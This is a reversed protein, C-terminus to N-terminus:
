LVLLEYLEAYDMEKWSHEKFLAMLDNYVVEKSRGYTDSVICLNDDIREVLVFGIINYRLSVYWCNM